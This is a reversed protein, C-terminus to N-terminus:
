GSKPYESFVIQHLELVDITVSGGVCDPIFTPTVVGDSRGGFGVKSKDGVLTPVNHSATVISNLLITPM